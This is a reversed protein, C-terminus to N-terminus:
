ESTTLNQLRVELAKVPVMETLYVMKRRLEVVIGSLKIPYDVNGDGGTNVWEPWTLQRQDPCNYPYPYEDIGRSVPVDFQLFNWGDFNIAIKGQWDLMECGWGGRGCSLWREGKADTFEWMVQGWGSNGKVWVGVSKPKGPALIPDKLRLFAYESVLDPVEKEPVLTVALCKGRESDDAEQITMKGQTRFPLYSAMPKELRNDTGEAIEWDVTRDMKNLVTLRPPIEDQPFEPTGPIVEQLPDATRIYTTGTGITLQARGRRIACQKERGVFDILAFETQGKRGSGDAFRLSVARRGRVTWLAYALGQCTQFEMAYLSTSSTPVARVFRAGDLVRTLTALAVYSIKPTLLPSRYGLGTAGWVSHYYSNGVDYLVAPNIRHFGYALALLCDRVYWDAQTKLGLSRESRYDWEMCATIPKDGYGLKRATEKMLWACQFDGELPPKEPIFSQCVAEMGLYDIYEKPYKRRFFEACLPASYGSNGFAIKIQPYKDRYFKSLAMARDWLQAHFAMDQEPTLRKPQGGYLEPPLELGPVSQEHFIMASDCHPYKQLMIAIMNTCATMWTDLPMEYSGYLYPIYGATVRYPAMTEESLSSADLTTHRLGARLFLPGAIELKDTGYHRDAFWWTGYPSEYGAKRTDPPLIALTTQHDVLIRRSKDVLRISASYWGVDGVDVPCDVVQEQNTAQLRITRNGQTKRGDVDKYTWQISAQVARGVKNRLHLQFGPKESRYFINGVQSSRCVMSVPSEELTLGFLHIASPPGYPKAGIGEPAELSRTLELDFYDTFAWMGRTDDTLLDQIQGIHLPVRVLWLPLEKGSAAVVGVQKVGEGPKEGRRPLVVTTDATADGRGEPAYRTLRVTLFPAKGSLEEAACLLYAYIYQKKPVSFIITEPVGDFASRTYYIDDLSIGQKILLRSLGVDVSDEAKVVRMPVDGFLQDGPQLSLTWDKVAGPRAYGRLAVPLFLGTDTPKAWRVEQIGGGNAFSLAIQSLPGSRPASGAFRGDIWFELGGEVPKLELEFIHQSASPLEKWKAVLEQQEKLEYFSPNPRVFYKLGWPLQLYADTVAVEHPDEVGGWSGKEGMAFKHDGAGIAWSTRNSDSTIVEIGMGQPDSGTRARVCLTLGAPAALALRYPGDCVLLDQEMHGSGQVVADEPIVGKQEGSVANLVCGVLLLFGAVMGIGWRSRTM